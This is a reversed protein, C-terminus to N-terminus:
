IKPLRKPFLRTLVAPFLAFYGIPGFVLGMFGFLLPLFWIGFFDDLQVQQPDDPDYYMGVQQGQEYSAPWSCIDSYHTFIQRDRTTFRVVPCYSNGDAYHRLEVEVVTGTVREAQLRFVAGSAWIAIALGLFVLGLGFFVLGFTRM